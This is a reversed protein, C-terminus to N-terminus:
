VVYLEKDIKIYELAKLFNNRENDSYWEKESLHEDAGRWGGLDFPNFNYDTKLHICYYDRCGLFHNVHGRTVIWNGFVHWLLLDPCLAHVRDQIRHLPISFDDLVKLDFYRDDRFKEDSLSDYFNNEIMYRVSMDMGKQPIDSSKYFSCGNFRGIKCTKYAIKHGQSTLVYGEPTSKIWHGNRSDSIVEFDQNNINGM